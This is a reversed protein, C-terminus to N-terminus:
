DVFVFENSLLLVQAYQEWPLLPEPKAEFPGAFEKASNWDRLYDAGEEPRGPDTRKLDFISKYQDNNLDNAIDVVFDITDDKEVNINVIDVDVKQQHLTWHALRGLRSSVIRAAIGNGAAAEHHIFGTISVTGDIPSIWRRIVAHQLDNGPHGGDATLRAWGLTADPWNPGGQWAEGTFHPLAEFTTVRQTEEDYEGYGYQWAPPGTAQSEELPPEPTNALFALGKQIEKESPERQFVFRYLRRIREDARSESEIQSRTATARAVEALFPSNMFFLAQQPVTTDYRQPSHMDPNPFDFTRFVSPLFQRDVYGYISRRPNFPQAMIDVPRGGLAADLRGSAALLSDRMAEFDLRQRNFRWLLRNEPDVAAAGANDAPHGTSDVKVPESSQRYVASMMILKHLKKMSWGDRVFQRALWDLLEPHTPPESRVGFDSPTRVLGQGFHHLWIRNVIVRATLPNDANAIARALELRGSGVQFPKRDDGSLVALYQRPVEPGRNAPNGRRFVRANKLVPKDELIVAHPPSGPMDIICADIDRQLKALEVRTPEDFYWESDVIADRPITFPSDEAYLIQRLAEDDADPLQAPPPKKRLSAQELEDRWANRISLFADGYREAVQPMSVPPSDKFHASIRANYKAADRPADTSEDKPFLERTLAEAEEAFKDQNLAAYALWPGFIPDDATKKGMYTQWQRVITPNIENAQRIEYFDETPLKDVDVLAILYEKVQARLRSSVDERKEEFTRTFKEVRARHEQEYAVYAETRVPEKVLRAARENSASFVGYLSYYDETPIPDFKHDHCRACAVTLAQTGRTLTDIRDDIIDHMVGLFRRGLTLFGMAALNPDNEDGVMRDAAIQLMLFRDYPMDDNLAKVVWDRYAYSHIFRREERDSYVYGKTDAYRAVDLWYRGWREGYHPSALLRDILTEYADPSNDSVFAEVEAYTPPLGLLDYTARRILVRRDAQPSLSLGKAELQAQVFHDIPTRAWGDNAIEPVAPDSLPQFAWHTGSSGTDPLAIGTGTRPDPAGMTIWAALHEIVADDLKAKPPMQLDPNQYRVAEILRSQGADGPVVAPRGSEGGRLVGDKTDLRLGGKLSQSEASHCPYCHEILVPRIHTEFYDFDQAYVRFTTLIASLCTGYKKAIIM